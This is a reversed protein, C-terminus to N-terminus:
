NFRQYNVREEDCYLDYCGERYGQRSVGLVELTEEEDEPTIYLFYDESEKLKNKAQM